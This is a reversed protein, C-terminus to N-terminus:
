DNTLATLWKVVDPMSYSAPGKIRKTGQFFSPVSHFDEYGKDLLRGKNENFNRRHGLDIEGVRIDMKEAAQQIIRSATRCPNCWQKATVITIMNSIKRKRISPHCKKM